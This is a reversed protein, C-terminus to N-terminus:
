KKGEWSLLKDLAEGKKAWEVNADTNLEDSVEQLAAQMALSQKRQTLMSKIYDYVTHTTGPQIVDSLELMKAPFKEQVVYFQYDVQTETLDSLYGKDKQFLEEMNASSLGLERAHQETKSVTLEGAQFGSNEVRSKVAIQELTQKKDKYDNRLSEAKAKAANADSEKPVIVLFMTLTDPQVYSAKNLEYSSRIESDKAQASKIKDGKKTVVFRQIILQNKMHDKYGKLTLGFLENFYEDLSVNERKRIYDAFQQETVERGFQQSIYQLFAQNAQSDSVTMGEKKAAQLILKENILAELVAKRQEVDFEKTAQREYTSVRNKLEKLRITESGNYKIIAVPQMDAQAFIGAAFATLFLMLTVLRKM